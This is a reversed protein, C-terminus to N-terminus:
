APSTEIASTRARGRQKVVEVEDDLVLGLGFLEDVASGWAKMFTAAEAYTETTSSTAVIPGSVVPVRAQGM